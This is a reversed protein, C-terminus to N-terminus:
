KAFQHNHSNAQMVVRLDQVDGGFYLLLGASSGLDKKAVVLDNVTTNVSEGAPKWNVVSIARDDMVKSSLHFERTIKSAPLRIVRLWRM